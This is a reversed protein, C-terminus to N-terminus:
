RLPLTGDAVGLLVKLGWGAVLGIVAAWAWWVGPRLLRLFDRGTLAEATAQRAYNSEEGSIFIEFLTAMAKHTLRQYDFANRDNHKSNDNSHQQMTNVM